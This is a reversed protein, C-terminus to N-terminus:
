VRKFSMRHLEFARSDPENRFFQKSQFGLEPHQPRVADLWVSSVFSVLRQTGRLLGEALTPHASMGRMLFGGPESGTKRALRNYWVKVATTARNFHRGASGPEGAIMAMNGPTLGLHENLRSQRSSHQKHAYWRPDVIHCLLRIAADLDVKPLFTVAAWAPHYAAIRRTMEPVERTTETLSSIMAYTVYDSTAMEHWHGYLNSAPPPQWIHHLVAAPDTRVWVAPVCAPSGLLISKSKFESSSARREQLKVVLMANTRTGLLKISRANALEDQYAAHSFFESPPLGTNEAPVGDDGYWVLGDEAVHLRVILDTRVALRM